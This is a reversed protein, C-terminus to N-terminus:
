LFTYISAVLQGFHVCCKLLAAMGISIASLAARTYPQIAIEREPLTKAGKAKICKPKFIMRSPKPFNFGSRVKNFKM